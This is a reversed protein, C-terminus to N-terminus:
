DLKKSYMPCERCKKRVFVTDTNEDVIEELLKLLEKSTELEHVSRIKNGEAVVLLM